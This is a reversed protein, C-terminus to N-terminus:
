QRKHKITTSTIRETLSGLLALKINFFLCKCREEEISMQLQHMRRRQALVHEKVLQIDTKQESADKLSATLSAIQGEFGAVQVQYQKEREEATVKQAEM